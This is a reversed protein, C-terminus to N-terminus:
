AASRRPPPARRRDRRQQGVRDLLAARGERRQALHELGAAREAVGRRAARSLADGRQEAEVGLRHREHRAARVGTALRGSRLRTGSGRRSSTRGGSRRRGRRCARRHGDDRMGAVLGRQAARDLGGRLPRISGTRTPGSAFIRATAASCPMSRAPRSITSAGCLWAAAAWATASIRSPLPSSRIFPLRCVSSSIRSTVAEAVPRRVSRRILWTKTMSTGPWGSVSNMVSAAILMKGSRSALRSMTWFAMSRQTPMPMPVGRTAIREATSVTVVLIGEVMSAAASQLIASRPWIM